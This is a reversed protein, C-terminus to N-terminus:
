VLLITPLTLHTYSVSKHMNEFRTKGTVILHRALQIRRYSELKPPSKRELATGRVPTFAFLAPLVTMDVCRQIVEAAEQETEGLGVIVHTSVNGRGFVAIAENLQRFQNDWSYSGGADKGKVKNFLAATAADM